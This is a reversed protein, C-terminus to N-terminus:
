YRIQKTLNLTSVRFSGINSLIYTKGDDEITAIEGFYWDNEIVMM